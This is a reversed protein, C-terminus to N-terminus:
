MEPQGHGIQAAGDAEPADDHIELEANLVLSQMTHCGAAVSATPRVALLARLM